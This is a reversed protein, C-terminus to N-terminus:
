LRQHQARRFRLVQWATLAALAVAGAGQVPPVPVILAVGAAAAALREVGSLPGLMWGVAALSLGALAASATVTILAIESLTGELLLGTGFPPLCFIVPVVFAPLTYKWAQMMTAFPKGGCIAAAAFPALATPPSVDALVAYYFMFM